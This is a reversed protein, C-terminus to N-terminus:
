ELRTTELLITKELKSFNDREAENTHSLLIDRACGVNPARWIASHCDSGIFHVKSEKFLKLAFARTRRETLFSANFQLFFPTKSLRELLKKKRLPLFYREVHALVPILGRENYVRELEDLVTETWSTFPMEILIYNSSGLTLKPLQEWASMGPCYRVEAGLVLRPVSDQESIEALMLDFSAQRAELFQDPYMDQGHFHPTLFVTEVGQEYEMRLMKVAEEANSCGDDIGPLIHTHLDVSLFSM